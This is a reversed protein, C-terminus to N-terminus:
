KAVYGARARATHRSHKMKVSITHFSGDAHAPEFGLLYQSQLEDCIRGVAASIESSDRLPEVYGGSDITLRELIAVDVPAGKSTGMGIAYLLAGSDSVAKKSEEAAARRKMAHQIQQTEAADTRAPMPPGAPIANDLGDSILLLVKRQHEALRFAPAIMRVADFLSTRGGPRLGAFTRVMRGHERTWPVAIAVKDAFVSFFVEDRPDLRAVLRELARQTDAWRTEDMSRSQPDAAMSGSIDLLVGLSVPARDASFQTIARRLGGDSIEFQDAKLNPVFRGNRDTVTVPVLVVETRARFVPTDQAQLSLPLVFFSYLAAALLRRNARTCM